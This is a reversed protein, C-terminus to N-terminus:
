VLNQIDHFSFANAQVKLNYRNPGKSEELESRLLKVANEEHYKAKNPDQAQAQFALLMEYIAPYNLLYMKDADDNHPLAKRKYLLRICKEEGLNGRIFYVRVRRGDAFTEGRDILAPDQNNRESTSYGPGNENYDYSRGYIPIPKGTPLSASLVTEINYPLYINGDKPMTLKIEEVTGPWKGKLILTEEARNLLRGIEIDSLRLGDPLDLALRSKFYGFSDPSASNVASTYLTHREAELDSILGKELYAQAEKELAMAVDPQGSLFTVISIAASKLAEYNSLALPTADTVVATVNIQNIPKKVGLRGAKLLFNYHNVMKEQAKLVLEKLENDSLKLGNPLELALRAKAWGYTNKVSEELLTQYEAHRKSEFTLTVKKTLKENAQDQLYKANEIQGSNLAAISLYALKILDFDRLPEPPLGTDYINATQPLLQLNSKVGFRDTKILANYELSLKEIAKKIGQYIEFDSIKLGDPAELALRARIQLFSGEEAAELEAKYNSHRRSELRTTLAQELKEMAKKELESAKSIANQDKSVIALNALVMFRIATYDPILLNATNSQQKSYVLSPVGDKVGYRGNKILSNYHDVLREQAKNVMESLEKDSFSLGNPLDLALKAKAYGFTNLTTSDLLASYLSHRKDEVDLALKEEMLTVAQNLYKEFVDPNNENTAQIALVGHRIISYDKIPLLQEDNYSFSYELTQINDKVGYRGNKLLLNYKGVLLDMGKNILDVLQADDIRLGNKLDLALRSRVFGMTGYPFASVSSQYASKRALEIAMDTKISLHEIAKTELAKALDMQNNEERWLALMMMKLADLDDILLLDSPLVAPRFSLRGTIEVYEIVKTELYTPATKPSVIIYKTQNAPDPYIQLVGYTENVFCSVSNTKFFPTALSTEATTPVYESVRSVSEFGFDILRDAGEKGVAGQPLVFSKLLAGNVETTSTKCIAKAMVGLWPRIAYLRRQAENIRTVVREDTSCVGNDAYKALLNRAQVLTM